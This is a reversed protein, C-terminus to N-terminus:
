ESAAFRSKKDPCVLGAVLTRLQSAIFPKPLFHWRDNLILMGDPFGSMMLVKLKPRDMVLVTALEIGSMEAMQFDALLLHIEGEFERSQQLGQAGSDAMLINYEDGPSLVDAILERVLPHGDAVLITKRSHPSESKTEL